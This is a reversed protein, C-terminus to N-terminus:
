VLAGGIGGGGLEPAVTPLRHTHSHVDGVLARHARPDGRHDRCKAAHVHQHAVGTDLDDMRQFLKGESFPFRQQGDVEIASEKGRARAQWM